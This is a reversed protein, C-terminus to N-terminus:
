RYCVQRIRLSGSFGRTRTQQARNPSPSCSYSGPDHWRESQISSPHGRGAARGACLLVQTQPETGPFFRLCEIGTHPAGQLIHVSPACGPGPATGEEGLALRPLQSGSHSHSVLGKFPCTLGFSTMFALHQGSVMPIRVLLSGLTAQVSSLWPPM